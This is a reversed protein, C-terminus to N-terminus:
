GSPKRAVAHCWPQFLAGRFCLRTGATTMETYSRNDALDDPRPLDFPMTFPQLRPEVFGAALVLARFRDQSRFFLRLGQPHERTTEVIELEQRWPQLLEFAVLAGGPRLCRFVRVLAQGAARDDLAWFVVNVTVVDYADPQDLELLDGVVFEIGRLAPDQRNREITSVSLDLGGLTAQPLRRRMHLLLNGTSCGLDLIRPAPVSIEREVLSLLVRDSERMNTAYRQQYQRYREM